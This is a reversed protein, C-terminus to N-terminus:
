KQLGHAQEAPISYATLNQDSYMLFLFSFCELSFATHSAETQPFSLGTHLPPSFIGRKHMLLLWYQKYNNVIVYM